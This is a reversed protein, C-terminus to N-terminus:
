GRKECASRVRAAPRGPCGPHHRFAAEAQITNKVGPKWFGGYFVCPSDLFDNFTLPSAMNPLRRTNRAGITAKAMLPEIELEEVVRNVVRVLHHEPILEELSPPLLSMQEMSYSKFTIQGNNM